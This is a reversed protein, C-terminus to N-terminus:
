NLGGVEIDDIAGDAYKKANAEATAGAALEGQVSSHLKSKPIDGDINNVSIKGNVTMESGDWVLRKNGFSFHGKDLDIWSYSNESSITGAKINGGNITVKDTKDFDQFTPRSDIEAQVDEPAPTWDTAKNGKELKITPLDRIM